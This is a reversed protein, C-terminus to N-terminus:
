RKTYQEYTNISADKILPKTTAVKVNLTRSEITSKKSM